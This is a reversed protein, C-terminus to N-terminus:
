QKNINRKINLNSVDLRINQDIKKPPIVKDDEKSVIKRTVIAKEKIDSNDQIIKPNSNSVNLKPLNRNLESINNSSDYINFLGTYIVTTIENSTTTIYFINNNSEYIKRIDTIKNKPIKFVVQGISLNNEAERYIPVKVETTSNKFELQINNMSSMDLYQISTATTDSSDTTNSAIVFNIINDFPFINILLKGIGYFKDKNYVVNDSKCIVNSKDIMVPFPIKVTQLTINSVHGFFEAGVGTNANGFTASGVTRTNYIKPKMANRLNIKSLNLSYKSVEDQLMGYSAKRVIYSNDVADILKMEVDIIATTTSYKIIPRYEIKENFNENVTITLSKGRINQEYTTITYQIYYKNGLAVSNDIFTKLEALSGNYTGYIEFFDGNVSHEIKLGIQEFEPTQPVTVTIKPSMLYTTIGNLTQSKTIFYFDIFIPSNISLGLGNTLNSNISNEKAKGNVRQNSIESVSPIEIQINKGWLKEQFLLPPSTYNLLYSQSVDSIDFYFNTLEFINKNDYGYTYAKIYCGIYEGFTYNIPLHIKITDYRVPIGASYDKEQLFSYYNTDVKGYKGTVYDIRFLQNGKINNTASTETSIFSNIGDKINVLIKYQESILNGDNYVYEFLVDRHIKAYKSIKM